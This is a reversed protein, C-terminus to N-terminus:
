IPSYRRYLVILVILIFLGIFFSIWPSTGTKHIDKKVTETAQSIERRTIEESSESILAKNEETIESGAQSQTNTKKSKIVANAGTITTTKGTADILVITKDSDAQVLEIEQQETTERVHLTDKIKIIETEQFDKGSIKGINETIELSNNEKSIIKKKSTCGTCTAVLILLMVISGIAMIRNEKEESM